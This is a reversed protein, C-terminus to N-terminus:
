LLPKAIEILNRHKLLFEYMLKSTEFTLETM